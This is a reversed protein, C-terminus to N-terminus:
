DQRAQLIHCLHLPLRFAKERILMPIDLRHSVSALRSTLKQRQPVSARLLLQADSIVFLHHILSRSSRCHRVKRPLRCTLTPQSAVLIQLMLVKLSREKLTLKKKHKQFVITRRNNCLYLIHRGKSSSFKPKKATTPLPGHSRRLKSIQVRHHSGSTTEYFLQLSFLLPVTSDDTRDDM